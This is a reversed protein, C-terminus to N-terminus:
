RPKETPGVAASLAEWEPTYGCHWFLPPRDRPPAEQQLSRELALWTKGGFIPDVKIGTEREVAGCLLPLDKSFRAFTADRQVSVLEVDGGAVRSTLGLAHETWRLLRMTTLRLPARDIRVGVVRVREWGEAELARAGLLFGAITTGTAVTIFVASPLPQGAARRQAAMELFGCANGVVSAPHAGGPLLLFPRRGAARGELWRRVGQVLAGPWNRGLLEVRDRVERFIWERDSRAAHPHDIVLIRTRLPYRDLALLLDFVLNSVNGTLLILEDYGRHRLHGLLYELKRAKSGGRGFGCLDDRKVLIEGIGARRVLEIPTPWQGLALRPQSLLRAAAGGPRFGALHALGSPADAPVLPHM